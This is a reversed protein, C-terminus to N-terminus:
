TQNASTAYGKQMRSPRTLRSIRASPVIRVEVAAGLAAAIKVLTRIEFNKFSGSELKAVHPQQIGAIEAVESQSLDLERRLKIIDEEITLESLLKQVLLEFEDSGDRLMEKAPANAYKKRNSNTPM